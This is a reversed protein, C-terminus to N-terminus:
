ESWKLFSLMDRQLLSHNTLKLNTLIGRCWLENYRVRDDQGDCLYHFYTYTGTVVAEGEEVCMGLHVDEILKLEVTM